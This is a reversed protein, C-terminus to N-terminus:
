STMCTSIRQAMTLTRNPQVFIKTISKCVATKLTPPYLKNEMSYTNKCM